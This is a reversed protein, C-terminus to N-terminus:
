LETRVATFVRQINEKLLGFKVFNNSFNKAVLKFFHITIQSSVPKSPIILLSIMKKENVEKESLPEASNKKFAVSCFESICATINMTYNTFISSISSAVRQIM